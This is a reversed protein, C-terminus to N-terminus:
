SAQVPVVSKLSSILGVTGSNSSVNFEPAEIEMRPNAGDLGALLVPLLRNQAAKIEARFTEIGGSRASVVILVAASNSLDARPDTWSRPDFGSERLQEVLHGIRDADVPSYVLRVRGELRARERAWGAVGALSAAAAAAVIATVAALVYLLSTTDGRDAVLLYSASVTSVFAAAFFEIAREVTM